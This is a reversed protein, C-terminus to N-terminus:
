TGIMAKYNAYTYTALAFTIVALLIGFALPIIIDKAEGKGEHWEEWKQWTTHLTNYLARICLVGFALGVAMGAVTIVLELIDNDEVKMEQGGMKLELALAQNSIFIVFVAWMGYIKSKMKVGLVLDIDCDFYM